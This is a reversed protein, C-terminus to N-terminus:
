RSRALLSKIQAVLQRADGKVAYDDAGAALAQARDESKDNASLMLIPIDHTRPDSRLAKVMELGNMEPMHFDALVLKPPGRRAANLGSLGDGAVLVEFGQSELLRTLMAAIMRSDEVVLVQQKDKSPEAKEEHSDAPQTM